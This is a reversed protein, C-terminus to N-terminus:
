KLLRKVNNAWHRNLGRPDNSAGLPAYTRAIWDVPHGPRGARHWEALRRRVTNECWRRAEAVTLRRKAIIGYPYRRSNEAKGIAEVLKPVDPCVVKSVAAECRAALACLSAIALLLKM